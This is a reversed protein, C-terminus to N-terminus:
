CPSSDAPYISTCVEVCMQPSFTCVERAQRDGESFVVDRTVVERGHEDTSESVVKTSKIAGGVFEEAHRVKRHLGNWLQTQTIKTTTSAPNVPATYALFATPRNSTSM